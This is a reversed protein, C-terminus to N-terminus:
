DEDTIEEVKVQKAKDNKNKRNTYEQEQIRELKKKLTDPCGPPLEIPSPGDVYEIGAQAIGVPFLSSVILSKILTARRSADTKLPMFDDENREAMMRHVLTRRHFAMRDTKAISRPVHATQPAYALLFSALAKDLDPEASDEDWGVSGAHCLHASCILAVVFKWMTLGM